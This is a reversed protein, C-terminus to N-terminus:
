KSRPGPKKLLVPNPHNKQIQIKTERSRSKQRPKEPITPDQEPNKQIRSRPKKKPEPEPRQDKGCFAQTKLIKSKPKRESIPDQHKKRNSKTIKKPNDHESSTFINRIIARQL